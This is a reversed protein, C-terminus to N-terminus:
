GCVVGFDELRVEKGESNIQLLPVEGYFSAWMSFTSPPGIIYDCEALAYLDEVLQGPGLNINLELFHEKDIAENSCLLFSTKQGEKEFLDKVQQMKDFYVNDGFLYKGGEFTKYDGKRLHVGILVDASHRSERILTKVKNLYNDEPRFIARIKEVHKRVNEYDRFLWGYSIVIKKSKVKDIFEKNNLDFIINKADFTYDIFEIRHFPSSRFLRGMTPILYEGLLTLLNHFSGYKVSINYTGFDNENTASFLNCYEYFCPNILEYDYEISNAIFHSFLFLRNCLQGCKNGIIVM